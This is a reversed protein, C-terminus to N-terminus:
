APLPVPSGAGAARGPPASRPAGCERRRRRRGIARRTRGVGLLSGGAGPYRRHRIIRLVRQEVEGAVVRVGPKPELAQLDVVPAGKMLSDPVQCRIAFGAQEGAVDAGALRRQHVGDGGQQYRGLADGVVLGGAGFLALTAQAGVHKAVILGLAAVAGQGGLGNGQTVEIAVRHNERLEVMGAVVLVDGQGLQEPQAVALPLGSAAIHDGVPRQGDGLVEGVEAAVEIGQALAQALQGLHLEEVVERGIPRREAPAKTEVALLGQLQEVLRDRHFRDAIEGLEHAPM